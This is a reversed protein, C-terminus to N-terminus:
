QRRMRTKSGDQPRGFLRPGDGGAISGSAPHCFRAGPVLCLLIPVDSLRDTRTGLVLPHNGTPRSNQVGHGPGPHSVNTGRRRDTRARMVHWCGRRGCSMRIATSRPRTVRWLCWRPKPGRRSRRSRAPDRATMSHRWRGMRWRGSSAASFRRIICASGKGWRLSRRTRVSRSLVTLSGIEEDTDGSRGGTAM